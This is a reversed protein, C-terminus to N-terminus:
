PSGGVVLGLRYIEFRDVVELHTADPPCLYFFDDTFDNALSNPIDGFTQYGVEHFFLVESVAPRFFLAKQLDPSDNIIARWKTSVRQALLLDKLPLHLLIMELLETTCLVREILARLKARRERLARRREKGRRRKEKKKQTKTKPIRFRAM